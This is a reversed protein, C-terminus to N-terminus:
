PNLVTKENNTKEKKVRKKVKWSEAFDKRNNFAQRYAVGIGGGQQPKQENQNLESVDNFFFFNMRWTGADNLLVEVDLGGVFNNNSSVLKNDAYGVNTKLIIRDNYFNKQLNVSYENYIDQNNIYNVGINLNGLEDSILSNLIGAAFDIGSGVAQGMDGINTIFTNLFVFSFFQRIGNQQDATDLVAFVSMQEADNLRPFAFSFSPHPNMLNGNLGLYANVDTRGFEESLARLSAAKQYLASVNIQASTLPGSFAITGGEVITFDRPFFNRLSMSFKGSVISLLGDIDMQESLTNYLLHLTGATKCQLVGDIPDLELKVDADKTIDFIFDFNLETSIKKKEIVVEKNDNNQVFYIGQSSSVTSASSLPFTILSGSLTKINHSTFNIQKTDGKISIDGSVFGTGFFPADAKRPTNLALIKPTAINLDIKFDKFKNHHVFGSLTADNNFKDKLLVKDFNIGQKNFSIEQNTINYVTKLPDIGLQADNIKVKGDFYLSDKNMVFDLHGSANGTVIDSFSALFPSLFGLRLTDMDAHVRLTKEKTLWRGNLEILRNPLSLYDSYTFKSLNIASTKQNSFIGGKFYPDTDELIYADLFLNGMQEQNFIFEKVFTKGEMKFQNTGSTLIAMLSLDGGFSMSSKATLSNLLSIDFNEFLINCEKQSAGTSIGGNVSIKGFDSALVCQDFLYNEKDFSVTNKDGTFQWL